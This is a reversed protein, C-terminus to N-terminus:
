KASRHGMFLRLLRTTVANGAIRLFITRLAIAFETPPLFFRERGRRAQEQINLAIPRFEAEWERLATSLDGPHRELLDGLLDAGGVALSAGYGAYFGTCWAADGVLVV